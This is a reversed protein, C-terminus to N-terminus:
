PIFRPRGRGESVLYETDAHLNHWSDKRGSPWAIDMRDVHTISSLGFVLQRQNSAQYGDGATLQRTIKRDGLQLTVTTGIADRASEIGRLTVALFHGHQRTTNTLIAVPQDLNSIVADELGDRNWDCRALSRGLYHQTFYPGTQSAPQLVFQGKGANHFFQPQMQYPRGYARYDDIHGNAVILDLSGDLDADLFQTGFGLLSLSSEELRSEATKDAFFLGPLSRYLTNSERYFNTVFVDLGGDNDTDGVAIGMCGEARGAHNLAIGATMGQEEFILGADQTTGRNVFLTNPVTDNAVFLSLRGDREFDAAIVGLGKGDHVEVGSDKTANKFSGDGQNIYLQDQAGPFHFPMCMRPRGDDHQCITEFIGDGELYNVSYIDPLSDGNLDSVVCSTSWGPDDVGALDTVDSFTGDGNNKFLRNRGINAVYLDAFGDNDFDGVAVGTSFRDEILGTANTVDLFQGSGSNRFLRDLYLNQNGASKWHCGQTLHVDPWGDADFDLVGCGGGNFQYMYQGNSDSDFDNFYHHILGSSEASNEFTVLSQPSTSSREIPGTNLKWAPEPLQSLDGPLDLATCVRTLPADKLLGQLAQAKAIAWNAQPDVDRAVVCWGWAEYLRGLEELQLVLQRIPEADTHRKSTVLDSSTRLELLREIRQQLFAASEHDDIATFYQFLNYTATRSTPDQKLSEWFCRAAGESNGDLEALQGRVLWFRADDIRASKPEALLAHLEHYNRTELLLDALAIRPEHLEPDAAMARRLLELAQTVEDSNRAHWAQGVLVGASKPNANAYRQLETLNFLAGGDTSVLVMLDIHFTAQRFLRLIFPVAESRRAQIGLLSALQFLANKDEPVHKLAARFDAEAAVANGTHHMEIRGCRLRAHVEAESSGAPVRRYYVLAQDFRDTAFAADAALVLAAIHDPHLTLVQETIAAANDYDGRLFERKADRMLSLVDPRDSWFYGATCCLLLMVIAALRRRSGPKASTASQLESDM